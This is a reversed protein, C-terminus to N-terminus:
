TNRKIGKFGYVYLSYFLPAMLILSSFVLDYRSELQVRQLIKPHLPVEFLYFLNWLIMVPFFSKWNRTQFILRNWAYGYLGIMSYIFVTIDIIEWLRSFGVWLYEPVCFV